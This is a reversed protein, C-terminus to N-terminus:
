GSGRRGTEVLDGCALEEPAAEPRIAHLHVYESAGSTLLEPAVGELLASVSATGDASASFAIPQEISGPPVEPIGPEHGGHAQLGKALVRDFRVLALAAGFTAGHEEEEHEEGTREDSCSGEHVQAYYTTTPATVPLGSVVLDAQVGLNGVEKFVATGSTASDGVSKLEAEAIAGGVTAGGAERSLSSSSTSGREASESSGGATACGAVLSSSLAIVALSFWVAFTRSV